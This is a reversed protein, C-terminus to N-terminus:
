ASQFMCFYTQRIYRDTATAGVQGFAKLKGKHAWEYIKNAVTNWWGCSELRLLSNNSDERM